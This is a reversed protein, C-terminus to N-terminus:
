SHGSREREPGPTVTWEKPKEGTVDKIALGMVRQMVKMFDKKTKEDQRVAGMVISGILKAGEMTDTQAMYANWFGGEERIALRLKV